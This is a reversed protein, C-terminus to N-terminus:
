KCMGFLPETKIIQMIEEHAEHNSIESDRYRKYIDSINNLIRSAHGRTRVDHMMLTSVYLNQHEDFVNKARAMHSDNEKVKMYQPAFILSNHYRFAAVRFDKLEKAEEQKRWVNIALFGVIAATLTAMASVWAGIMSWFGWEAADRAAILSEYSIYEANMIVGHLKPHNYQFVNDFGSM